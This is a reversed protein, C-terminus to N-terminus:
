KAHGLMAFGWVHVAAVMMQEARSIVAKKMRVPLNVSAQMANFVKVPLLVVPGRVTIPHLTTASRTKMDEELTIVVIDGLQNLTL